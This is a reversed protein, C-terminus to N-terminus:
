RKLRNYWVEGRQQTFENRGLFLVKVSAPNDKPGRPRKWQHTAFGVPQGFDVAQGPEPEKLSVHLFLEEPM